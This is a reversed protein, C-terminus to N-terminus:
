SSEFLVSGIALAGTNVTPWKTNAAASATMGNEIINAGTPTLIFLFIDGAFNFISNLIKNITVPIFINSLPRPM